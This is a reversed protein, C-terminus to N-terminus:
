RWQWSTMTAGTRWIDQQLLLCSLVPLIHFFIFFELGVEACDKILQASLDLLIFVFCFVFGDFGYQCSTPDFGFISSLPLSWPHAVIGIVNMSDAGLGQMKFQYGYQCFLNFFHVECRWTGVDIAPLVLVSSYGASRFAV